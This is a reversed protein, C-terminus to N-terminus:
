RHSRTEAASGESSRSSGIGRLVFDTIGAAAQERPEAVAAPQDARVSVAGYIQQGILTTAVDADMPRFMGAAVGEVYLDRIIRAINLSIVALESGVAEGGLGTSGHVMLALRFFAPDEDIRALMEAVLRELRTVPDPHQEWAEALAELLQAHMGDLCARLLEERSAFYVYVTSRAVGAQAAIEDMSVDTTSREGFLRRAVKVVQERRYDRLVEKLGDDANRPM